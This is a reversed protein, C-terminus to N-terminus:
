EISDQVFRSFFVALVVIVIVIVVLILTFGDFYWSNSANRRGRRDGRRGGDRAAGLVRCNNVITCSSLICAVLFKCRRRRPLMVVTSVFAVVITAAAIVVTIIVVIAAVVVNAYQDSFLPSDFLHIDTCRIGLYFGLGGGTPRKTGRFSQVPRRRRRTDFGRHIDVHVHVHVHVGVVHVVFLFVCHVQVIGLSLDREIEFDGKQVQRALAHVDHEVVFGNPAVIVRRPSRSAATAAAALFVSFLRDLSGGDFLIGDSRGFELCYQSRRLRFCSVCVGVRSSLPAGQDSVHPHGQHGSGQGDDHGAVGPSVGEVIEHGLRVQRFRRGLLSVLEVLVIEVRGM